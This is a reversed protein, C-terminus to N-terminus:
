PTLRLITLQTDSRCEHVMTRCCCRRGEDTQQHEETLPTVPTTNTNSNNMHCTHTTRREWVCTKVVREQNGRQKKNDILLLRHVVSVNINEFLSRSDIIIQISRWHHKTWEIEGMGFELAIIIQRSFFFFFPHYVTNQSGKWCPACWEWQNVYEKRQCIVLKEFNKISRSQISTAISAQNNQFHHSNRAM